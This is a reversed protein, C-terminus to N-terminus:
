KKKVLMGIFIAKPQHAHIIQIKNEYIIRKLTKIKKKSIFYGSKITFIIVNEIENKIKDILPGERFTVLYVKNIKAEHTLIDFLHIESGYLQPNDLLYLINM